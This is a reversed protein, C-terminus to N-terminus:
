PYNYNVITKLNSSISKKEQVSKRRINRIRFALVSLGAALRFVQANGKIRKKGEAECKVLETIAIMDETEVATRSSHM